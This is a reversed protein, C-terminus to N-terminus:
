YISYLRAHPFFHKSSQGQSIRSSVKLRCGNKTQNSYSKKFLALALCRRLWSARTDGFNNGESIWDRQHTTQKSAFRAATGNRRSRTRIRSPMALLVALTIPRRPAAGDSAVIWSGRPDSLFAPPSSLTDGLHRLAPRGARIRALQETQFEVHAIEERHIQECISRLVISATAESLAPYYIKAIIEATVLVSISVELSGFMNRARRFIGDTCGRKIRAIGNLEMFRGLVGAHRQEEVILMRIAEPYAADGTRDAWEKAYRMLHRGESNEGLQFMQISHAIAAREEDSLDPGIHWPVRMAVSGNWRFHDVWYQTTRNM